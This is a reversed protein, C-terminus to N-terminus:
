EHRFQAAPISISATTVPSGAWLGQVDINGVPVLASPNLVSNVTIDLATGAVYYALQSCFLRFNIRSCQLNPSSVSSYTLTDV